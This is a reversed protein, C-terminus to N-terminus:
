ATITAMANHTASMSAHVFLAQSLSAVHASEAAGASSVTAPRAQVHLAPKEPSPSCPFQAPIGASPTAVCVCVQGDEANHTAVCSVTPTFSLSDHWAM